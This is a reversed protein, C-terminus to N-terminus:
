VPRGFVTSDIRLQQRVAILLIITGVSLSLAIAIAAGNMGLSPILAFCLVINVAAAVSLARATQNQHGTMNLLTTVSGAAANLFQGAAMIVLPVYAVEYPEGFVFSLIPKGFFIVLLVAPLSVIMAARAGLTAVQQLHTRDNLTHFRAIYPGAMEDFVTIGFAILSAGTVVVKYIGVDEVRHFYGLILIGVNANLVSLGGTFALPVVAALWARSQYAPPSTSSRLPEPRLRWLIAAGVLFAATAAAVHMAMAGFPTLLGHSPLAVALGLLAIQIAPRVVNEPLAGAVIHRLGSLAAGRTTGLAVLPVLVLGLLFTDHLEGQFLHPLWEVAVLAIAAIALSLLGIMMGAWRWLGAIAPWQELAVSKATERVIISPPGLFVPIALTTILAVAYTYIGFGQPGLLRALLVILIAMLVVSALKVSLM